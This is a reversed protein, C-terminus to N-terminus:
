FEHSIDMDRSKFSDTSQVFISCFVQFYIEIDHVFGVLFEAKAEDVGIGFGLDDGEKMSGSEPVPLFSPSVEAVYLVVPCGDTILLATRFCSKNFFQNVGDIRPQDCSATFRFNVGLADLGWLSDSFRYRNEKIRLTASATAPRAEDQLPGVTVSGLNRSLDSQSRSPCLRTLTVRAQGDSVPSFTLCGFLERFGQEGHM